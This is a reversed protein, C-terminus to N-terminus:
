PFYRKLNIHNKDFLIIFVTTITISLLKDQIKINEPINGTFCFFFLFVREGRLLKTTRKRENMLKKLQQTKGKDGTM